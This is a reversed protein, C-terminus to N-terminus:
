VRNKDERFALESDLRVTDSQNRLILLISDIALSAM